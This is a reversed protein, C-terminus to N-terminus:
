ISRKYWCRTSGFTGISSTAPVTLSKICSPFTKCQPSDSALAREIRRAWATHGKDATCLSYAIQHRSGSVFINGVSSSNPMPKTGIARQSTREKRTYDVLVATEVLAVAAPVQRLERGFGQLVIHREHSQHSFPRFPFPNSRRLEGEHPHQRAFRPDSRYGSCGGRCMQIIQETRSSYTERSPFHLLEVALIRFYVQHPMTGVREGFTLYIFLFCIM